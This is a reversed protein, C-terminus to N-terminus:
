INRKYILCFICLFHYRQSWLKTDLYTQSHLIM